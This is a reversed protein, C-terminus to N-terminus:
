VEVREAEAWIWELGYRERWEGTLIHVIVDLLDILIWNGYEMGEVHDVEYGRKELEDVIYNALARAHTPSNATAIVFFDAINTLKSVDLISVEEAKKNELLERLLRLKEM